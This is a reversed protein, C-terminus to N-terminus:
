RVVLMEDAGKQFEYETKIIKTKFGKEKLAEIIKDFHSSRQNQLTVIPFIRVEKAVRLMEEISSLHFSFDLHESYLFLFHSSLALDFEKTKFSLSPLMENIYRGESKGLEYDDLFKRMADMRISELHDPNKINKWVFDDANKRVQSMVEDKVEEIRKSLNDKSFQYIPDVSVVSGRLDYVQANFSSPGNGCGLIKLSLDSKTLKFMSRYEDLNRGWPVIKKLQM